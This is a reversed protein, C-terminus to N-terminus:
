LCFINASKLMDQTGNERMIQNECFIIIIISLPKFSYEYNFFM